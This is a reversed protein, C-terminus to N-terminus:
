NAHKLAEKTEARVAELRAALSVSSNVATSKTEPPLGGAVGAAVQQIAAMATAMDTGPTHQAQRIMSAEQGIGSHFIGGHAASFAKDAIAKLDTYEAETIERVNQVVIPVPKEGEAMHSRLREAVSQIETAFLGDVFDCLRALSLAPKKSHFYYM